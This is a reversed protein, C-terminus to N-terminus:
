VEFLHAIFLQNQSQSGVLVWNTLNMPAKLIDRVWEIAERCLISPLGGESFTVYM